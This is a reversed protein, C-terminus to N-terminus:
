VLEGGVARWALDAILQLPPVARDVQRHDPQWRAQGPPGDLCGEPGGRGSSSLADPRQRAQGQTRRGEKDMTHRLAEGGSHSSIPDYTDPEDVRLRASSQGLGRSKAAECSPLQAVSDIPEVGQELLDVKDFDIVDESAASALQSFNTLQAPIVRDV